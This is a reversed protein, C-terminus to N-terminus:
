PEENKGKLYELQCVANITFAVREGSLPSAKAM